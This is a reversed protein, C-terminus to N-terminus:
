ILDKNTLIKDYILNTKAKRGVIYETMEPSFGSGPRKYDIDERNIIEGEKIDRTLVISRRFEVKKEDTENATVRFSGLADSVRKANDVIDKMEDKTASVKHDWGEMNKDLTFHKEIVCAGLAVSALPIATGLTHDSFGIPYDPYTSMLTKINNLNVDKDEPPYTAVCHLICIDTNGTNEITKVAKDIEYLESLGTSIIMPKNKKALYELFPYNNLDMSAVKIFPTDMKDVLFDAEKKSFPTSTCDIGIEDALKKMELLEEESISYAEVIEELTYDDRDRYDDAVFYNDEYKKKAFISDKSWSQFKVCDSGAEKAEIILQKALKMDGNHNSGLEAIIYPKCFNFIKKKNTLQVKM